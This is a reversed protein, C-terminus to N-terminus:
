GNHEEKFFPSLALTSTKIQVHIGSSAARKMFDEILDTIDEDM